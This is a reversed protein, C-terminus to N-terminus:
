PFTPEARANYTKTIKNVMRHVAVLYSLHGFEPIKHEFSSYVVNFNEKQEHFQLSCHPIGKPLILFVSHSPFFFCNASFLSTISSNNGEDAKAIKLMVPRKFTKKEVFRCKVLRM